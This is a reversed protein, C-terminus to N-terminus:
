DRIYVQYVYSIKREEDPKLAITWTLLHKPNVKKLGEATKRDTCNPGKEMVEGSLEKTIEVNVEKALRNKIRLDGQVKVLDYHYGHFVAIDRKRDVETEAKEATLNLAKNIRITTEAKPPTYYCVDQGTIEDNTIFQTAATTLPMALTNTLRCSHWIEEGPKQDGSEREARYHDDNDVFDRINWTYIHRYPMEASFLPLWATEDRKLTLNKAPYFYLDETAEGEAATSYGPAIASEEMGFVAPSNVAVAQQMLRYDGAGGRGGTGSLSQLFEALSQSRAIPNSVGSFKINPFGTVLQLKVNDLDVMENIVVAHASFKATTADSLDVLYGPVWTIGRALYSVTVKEGGAAKELNMRIVPSVQKHKTTTVPEGEAFEARMVSGPNLAVIGKDTRIMIVSLPQSPPSSIYGPNGPQRPSMFYPSPTEKPGRSPPVPQITGDIDKDSTHVLVRRGANLELLQWISEVPDERESEENTTVLNQLKVGGPYGVWFTGLTPIPLQGIRVTRTGGPLEGSSVVFGLGNKFLAIKEIRLKVGAPPEDGARAPSPLLFGVCSVAILLFLHHPDRSRTM